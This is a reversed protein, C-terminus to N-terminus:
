EASCQQVPHGAVGIQLPDALADRCDARISGGLLDHREREADKQHQDAQHELDARDREM